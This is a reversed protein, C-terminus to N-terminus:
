RMLPATHAVQPFHNKDFSRDALRYIGMLGRALPDAPLSAPGRADM